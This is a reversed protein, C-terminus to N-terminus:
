ATRSLRLTSARIHIRSKRSRKRSKCRSGKRTPRPNRSRAELLFSGFKELAFEAEYRGPATQRLPLGKTEGGPEPGIISLKGDLGNQFRDDTGIADIFTKVTGTAIDVHAHMSLEQRRRQRMHERVLQGWFQGYGNWRLWEVAWLNKVDSTWALAWGLGVRWRALVPEGVDSQLLEQAPAPKMRTAVYGHLYPASSMEVGRLFDANGVVKPQFYEEVASNRSVM